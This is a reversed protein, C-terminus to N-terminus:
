SQMGLLTTRLVSHRPYGGASDQWSRVKGIGLTLPLLVVLGKCVGSDPPESDGADPSSHQQAPAAAAGSADREDGWYQALVSSPYLVPAGGGPQAVMHAHLGAPHARNVATELARCLVWPGLWEGPTIRGRGCTARHLVRATTLSIPWNNTTLIWSRAPRAEPDLLLGLKPCKRCTGQATFVPVCGYAAGDVCLNHVSFPSSPDPVDWFSRLLGLLADPYGGALSRRWSRGISHRMLAQPASHPTYAIDRLDSRLHQSGVSSRRMSAPRM